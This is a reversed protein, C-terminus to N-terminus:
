TYKALLIDAKNRSNKLNVVSDMILETTLLIGNAGVSDASDKLEKGFDPLSIQWENDEAIKLYSDFEGARLDPVLVIDKGSVKLLNIQKTTLTANRSGLCNLLWADLPSEVVFMYKASHTSILHQNFMYDSPSHQIFRTDSKKYIHRGLYGVTKGYHQFPIILYYPHEPSWLFPLEKAYGRIRKSLYLFVKKAAKHEHFAKTLMTTGKPLQVEPFKWSVELEEGEEVVVGSNSFVRTKWKMLEKLPIDRIDGGMLEFLRRARGGFGWDPQWGTPKTNYECGGNFCRYFYGGEPTFM